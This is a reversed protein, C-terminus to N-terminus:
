CGSTRAARRRSLRYRRAKTRQIANGSWRGIEFFGGIIAIDPSVRCDNGHFDTVIQAFRQDGVILRGIRARKEGFDVPTM